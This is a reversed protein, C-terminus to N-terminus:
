KWLIYFRTGDTRGDTSQFPCPLAPFSFFPCSLLITSIPLLPLFLLDQMDKRSPRGVLDLSGNQEKEKEVEELLYM